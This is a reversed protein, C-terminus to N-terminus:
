YIQLMGEIKTLETQLNQRTTVVMKNNEPHISFQNQVDNLLLLIKQQTGTVLHTKLIYTRASTDQNLILQYLYDGHTQWCAMCDNEKIDFTRPPKNNKFTLTVQGKNDLTFMAKYRKSGNETTDVVELAKRVKVNASLLSVQNTNLNFQYLGNPQRANTTKGSAESQAYFNLSNVTDVVEDGEIYKDDSFRIHSVKVFTLPIYRLKLNDVNLVFTRGNVIGAVFTDDKNVILETVTSRKDFQYIIREQDDNDRLVINVNGDQQSVFYLGGSSYQPLYENRAISNVSVVQAYQSAGISTHASSTATSNIQKPLIFESLKPVGKTNAVIFCRSGCDAVVQNVLEGNTNFSTLRGEETQFALLKANNDTFTFRTGQDNWTASQIGNKIMLDNTPQQTEEDKYYLLRTSDKFPLSLVFGSASPSPWINIQVINDSTKSGDAEGTNIAADGQMLQLQQAVSLLAPPLQDGQELEGTELVLRGLSSSSHDIIFLYNGTFDPALITVNAPIDTKYETIIPEKDQRGFRISYFGSGDTRTVLLKQAGRSFWFSTNLLEPFVIKLQKKNTTNEIKVQSISSSDIREIWVNSLYNNIYYTSVINNQIVSINSKKLLPKLDGSNPALFADIYWIILISMSSIIVGAGLLYKKNLQLWSKVVTSKLIVSPILLYGKTPATKIYLPNRANDKLAERAKKVMARLAEDTPEKNPWLAKVVEQKSILEGQNQILLILFQHVMPELKQQVGDVNLRGSNCDLEARLFVARM